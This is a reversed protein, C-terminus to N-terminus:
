DVLVGHVTLWEALGDVLDLNRVSRVPVFEANEADSAAHAIEGADQREALFDCIVFREKDTALETTGVLDGIILTLGTEERAERAAAQRLTEGPEVRGGPLSWRGAAPDHGRRVLLLAGDEVDVVGVCLTTRM